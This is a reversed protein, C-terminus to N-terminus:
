AGCHDWEQVFAGVTKIHEIDLSRGAKKQRMLLIGGLRDLTEDFTHFTGVHEGLIDSARLKDPSVRLVHAVALLGPSEPMLRDSRMATRQSIEQRQKKIDAQKRSQAVLLVALLVALTGMAYLGLGARYGVVIAVPMSFLLVPVLISPAMPGWPKGALGIKPRGKFHSRGERKLAFHLPFYVLGVGILMSAGWMLMVTEIAYSKAVRSTVEHPLLWPASILAVGTAVMVWSLLKM